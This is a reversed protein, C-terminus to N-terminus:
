ENDDLWNLNDEIELQRDAKLKKRDYIAVAKDTPLRFFEKMGRGVTTGYPQENIIEFEGANPDYITRDVQRVMRGFPYMTHLHYDAFRDWDNNILAVIPQIMTRAIPPTAIQLPALIGPYAGFFAREREKEDGYLWDGTEQIWDFPPPLTTDFLSYKFAAGLAYTMMDILFLDKFREFSGTGPEFGYDRAKRYLERRTRVSQFAFLKFRTMVKGLSTRMYAPRFASHYLFQTAEIGKLGAQMVAPDSLPLDKSMSGYSDRFQLAHSIFSDQRLKRESSAMFFSGGKILAKGIGYRRALETLTADSVDPNKKIISMAENIFDQANSGSKSLEARWEANINLENQIFNEIVGKESLWIKLDKTNQVLKPKGTATDIEKLELHFDGKSNKIINENLWKKSNARRVNRFGASAINMTQGGYMNSAYTGSNALLTMLEFKAEMRGTEHIIRSQYEQRAATQEKWAENIVKEGEPGVTWKEATVKPANKNFPMEYGHKKYQKELKDWGKIIMDDSMKNYFSGEFINKMRDSVKENKGTVPNMVQFIKDGFTTQHGLSDKLYRKMVFGWDATDKGFNRNTLMRDIQYNGLHAQILKYHNRVVNEYYMDTVGVSKDWGPMDFERNLINPNRKNLGMNNALQEFSIGKGDISDIVDKAIGHSLPSGSEKVLDWKLMEIGAAEAAETESKGRSIAQDYANNVREVKWAMMEAEAAKTAGFNMHPFYSEPNIKGVGKFKTSKRLKDRDKSKTKGSLIDQELKYEYAFRLQTEIPIINVDFSKISPELATKFYHNMDISGDSKYKIFKDNEWRGNKGQKGKSYIWKDGFGKFFQTMEKNSSEVWQELTKGEFKANANDKYLQSEKYDFGERKMLILDNVIQGQKINLKQRYPMSKDLEKRIAGEGIHSNEAVHIRGTFEKMAGITSMFVKVEKFKIDGGRQIVPNDFSSFLQGDFKAMHEDITRPDARFIWDPVKTRFKKSRTTLAELYNNLAKVDNMNMADVEKFANMRDKYWSPFWEEFNEAFKPNDKLNNRLKELQIFDEKTVGLDEVRWDRQSRAKVNDFPTKPVISTVTQEVIDMTNEVTESSGTAKDLKFRTYKQSQPMNTRRFTVNIRQDTLPADDIRHYWEKQSKGQMILLDNNSLPIDIKQGTKPNDITFRITEGFSVSAIFPDVGLEPENDQHRGIKQGKKYRNVLASNFEVGTSEEVIKKLKLLEPTWEVPKYTTGSFTYDTGPEGFYVIDRGSKRGLVLGKEWKIESDLKKSDIGSIRGKDLVVDGEAFITSKGEPIEVNKTRKIPQMIEGFAKETSIQKNAAANYIRNFEGLVGKVAEGSIAQSQISLMPPKDYFSGRSKYGSLLHYDFYTELLKPDIKNKLAVDALKKNKFQLIAADLEKFDIKLSEEGRVKQQDYYQKKLAFAYDQIPVLIEEIVKKSNKADTRGTEILAEQIEFGKEALKNISSVNYIDKGIFDLYQEIQWSEDGKREPRRYNFYKGGLTLRIHEKWRKKKAILEKPDKVGQFNPNASSVHYEAIDILRNLVDADPMEYKHVGDKKIQNVIQQSINGFNHKSDAVSDVMMEYVDRPMSSPGQENWQKPNSNALQIAAKIRKFPATSSASAILDYNFDLNVKHLARQTAYEIYQDTWKVNGEFAQEFMLNRFKSYPIQTPFDAADASRGVIERGLQRLIEHGGEKLKLTIVGNIKGNPSVVEYEYEGKSNLNKPNSLVDAWGIMINRGVLGYGLGQNGGSASRAVIKRMSPSFVSYPTKYPAQKEQWNKGLFIENFKEDKAPSYEGDKSNNKQWEYQNKKFMDKTKADFGQYFFASDSDKDAGGLYENDKGHTYVSIGKEGSFGTFKLVRVGSISDAPVRIATFEFANELAEMPVDEIYEYPDLEREKRSKNIRRLLGQAERYRGKHKRNSTSSLKEGEKIRKINWLTRLDTSVGDFQVKPNWNSDAKFEGPNLDMHPMKPALWAKASYDYKPYVYRDIFYKMVKRSEDKRIEKLLTRVGDGMGAETIIRKRKQNYIAWEKDNFSQEADLNEGRALAESEAKDIEYMQELFRKKLAKEHKSSKHDPKNIIKFALSANVDNINIKSLSGTGSKIYEQAISNIEPKGQIQPLFYTNFVHEAMEPSTQESNIVSFLQKVFKQKKFASKPDEKTGLNIRVDSKKMSLIHNSNNQDYNSRYEGTEKNYSLDHVNRIGRYKASSSMIIMDLDNARMYERLPAPAAQGASKVVMTGQGNKGPVIIVPKNMAVPIEGKKVILGPIEAAQNIENSVAHRYFISGDTDSAQISDIEVGLENLIKDNMIVYKYEGDLNLKYSKDNFLQMRKNYAVVDKAFGEGFQKNIQSFDRSGTTYLGEAESKYLANSVWQMEHMERLSEEPAKGQFWEDREIRYSDEFNQRIEREVKPDVEGDKGRALDKILTEARVRKPGTSDLHYTAALLVTKDKIGSYFYMPEQKANGKHLNFEMRWFNEASTTPVVEGDKISSHLPNDLKYIEAGTKKNTNVHNRIYQVEVFNGSSMTEIPRDIRKEGVLKGEMEGNLTGFHVAGDKDVTFVGAEVESQDLEKQAQTKERTKPKTAPASVPDNSDEVNSEIPDAKGMPEVIDYGFNKGMYMDHAKERYLIDVQEKTPNETNFKQGAEYIFYDNLVEQKPTLKNLDVEQVDKDFNRLVFKKATANISVPSGDLIYDHVKKTYKNWEPHEKPRFTYQGSPDSYKLDAMYKEGEMKWSPGGQRGFFGGLLTNYIVMEIPEKNAASPLGMMTAGVATRLNKEANEVQKPTGNKMINGLRTFEAIGGFAGGAVAGHITSDMIAEPGKWVSSAASAAGLHVAQSSINRAKSGKKLFEAADLGAKSLGQEYVNQAKHGALMPISYEGMERVVKQANKGAAKGLIKGTVYKIPAAAIGPAFGVLHGISHAISEYTNKPANNTWDSVPITTFGELFGQNLMNAVRKLRFESTERAKPDFISMQKWVGKGNEDEGVKVRKSTGIGQSKAIERLEDVQKEDFLEPNYQYRKLLNHVRMQYELTSM